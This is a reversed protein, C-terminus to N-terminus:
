LARKTHSPKRLTSLSCSKEMCMVHNIYLVKTKQRHQQQQRKAVSNILKALTGYGRVDVESDVAIKCSIM